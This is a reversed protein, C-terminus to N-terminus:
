CSELFGSKLYGHWKGPDLISPQLTPRDENGDWGWVRPADPTPGIRIQLADPGSVGPLWIYLTDREESFCFDGPQAMKGFAVKRTPISETNM